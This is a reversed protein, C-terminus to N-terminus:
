RPTEKTPDTGKSKALWRATKRAVGVAACYLDVESVVEFGGCKCMAWWHESERVPHLEVIAHRSHRAHKSRRWRLVLRAAAVRSAATGQRSM